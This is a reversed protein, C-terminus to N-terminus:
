WYKDTKKETYSFINWLIEEFQGIIYATGSQVIQPNNRKNNKDSCIINIKNIKICQLQVESVAPLVPRGLYITHFASSKKIKFCQNFLNIKLRIKSSSVKKNIFLYVALYLKSVFAMRVFSLSLKGLRPKHATWNQKSESLGIVVRLLVVM